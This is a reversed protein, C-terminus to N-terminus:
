RQELVTAKPLTVTPPNRTKLLKARQRWSATARAAMGAFALALVGCWWASILCVVVIAIGGVVSLGLESVWAGLSHIIPFIKM